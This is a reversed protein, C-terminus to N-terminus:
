PPASGRQCPGSSGSEARQTVHDSQARSSFALPLMALTDAPRPSRYDTTGHGSLQRDTAVVTVVVSLRVNPRTVFKTGLRVLPDRRTTARRADCVRYLVSSSPSLFLVPSTSLRPFHLYVSRARNTQDAAITKALSSSLACLRRRRRRDRVGGARHVREARVLHTALEERLQEFHGQSGRPRGNEVSFNSRLARPRVAAGRSSMVVPM